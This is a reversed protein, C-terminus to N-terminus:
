DGCNECVQSNGASRSIMERAVQYAIQGAPIILANRASEFWTERSEESMEAMDTNDLRNTNMLPNAVAFQTSHFTACLFLALLLTAMTSANM